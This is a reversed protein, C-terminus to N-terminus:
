DSEDRASRAESADDPQEIPGSTGSPDQPPQFAAAVFRALVPALSFEPDLRAALGECMIVTKVLLALERPFRLHHRRSIAMFQVLLPGIRIDGVPTEVTAETLQELAASFQAEDEDTPVIGLARLARSSRATDGTALALLIEILGGRIAPSVTGVMGFDVMAIRGSMEVFLNGPHPDAHYTGNVFVMALYADAFARALQRRDTGREDLAALDDIKTGYIRELTLVETTTLPWIVEPVHVHQAHLFPRLRDANRGEAVYDLEARITEGFEDVFGAVDLAQASGFLKSLVRALRRLIALDVEVQAKVGPRRVKV